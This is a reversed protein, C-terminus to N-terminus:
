QKNETLPFHVFTKYKSFTTYFNFNLKNNFYLQFKVKFVNKIFVLIPFMQIKIAVQQVNMCSNLKNTKFVCM